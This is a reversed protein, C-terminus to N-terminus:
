ITPVELLNIIKNALDFLFHIFYRFTSNKKIEREM